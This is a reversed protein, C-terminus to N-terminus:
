LARLLLNLTKGPLEVVRTVLEGIIVSQGM